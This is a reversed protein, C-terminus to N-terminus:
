PCTAPAVFCSLPDPTPDEGCGPFPAAPAAAGAFLHSLASIPDALDFTGDDNTDCADTCAVSSGDFLAGLAAIPDGM